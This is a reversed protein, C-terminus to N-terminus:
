PGSAGRWPPARPWGPASGWFLSGQHTDFYGWALSRAWDFYYAEDQTVPLLWALALRWLTVLLILIAVRGSPSEALDGANM